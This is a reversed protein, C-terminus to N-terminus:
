RVAAVMIAAAILPLGVCAKGPSDRTGGARARGIQIKLNNVAREPKDSAM